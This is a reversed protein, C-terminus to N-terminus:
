RLDFKGNFQKAESEWLLHGGAIGTAPGATISGLIAGDSSVYSGGQTSVDISDIIAWGTEFEGVGDCTVDLESGANPLGKLFADSFLPSVLRLPQDFWCNFEHTTSLPLENDNWVSFLLTNIDKDSGTMNILAIQSGMLAIFSDVILRDPIGEYENGDFEKDGDWDVDTRTREDRSSKFPIANMQYTVGSGSIVLESGVLYNYSWPYNFQRPDEATVVLYGEQSNFTANHCTTLVCLTDAPTLFEVRDFVVCNRPHFADDGLTINVYEFHANTGGSSPNINTNTVCAITFFMGGSRHVPYVLLSGPNRGGATAAPALAFSTLALALLSRYTKM